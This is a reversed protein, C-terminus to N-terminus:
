HQSADNDGKGNAIDIRAKIDAILADLQEANKRADTLRDGIQEAAGLASVPACTDDSQGASLSPDAPDLGLGYADLARLFGLTICGSPPLHDKVHIYVKDHIVRAKADITAQATVEHTSSATSLNAQGTEVVRAHHEAVVDGKAVAADQIAVKWEHVAFGIFVIVLLVGLAKIAWTPVPLPLGFM